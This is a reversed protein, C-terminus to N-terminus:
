VLMSDHIHIVAREQTGGGGNGGQAAAADERRRRERGVAGGSGREVLLLRPRQSEGGSKPRESAGHRPPAVANIPFGGSAESSLDPGGGGDEVIEM